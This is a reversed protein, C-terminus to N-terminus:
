EPAPMDDWYSSKRFLPWFFVGNRKCSPDNICNYYHPQFQDSWKGWIDIHRYGYAIIGEVGQLKKVAEHSKLTSCRGHRGNLYVVMDIVSFIYLRGDGGLIARPVGGKIMQYNAYRDLKDIFAGTRNLAYCLQSSCTERGKMFKAFDGGVMDRLGHGPVHNPALQNINPLREIDQVM